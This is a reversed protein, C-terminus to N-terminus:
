PGAPIALNGPVVGGQGQPAYAPMFGPGVTISTVRTMPGNGEFGFTINDAFYYLATNDYSLRVTMDPYYYKELVEAFTSGIHVGGKTIAPYPFRGLVRIVKVAGADQEDFTIMLTDEVIGKDTRIPLPYVWTVLWQVNDPGASAPAGGGGAPAMGGGAPAAGGAGGAAGAGGGPEAFGNVGYGGPQAGSGIEIRSPSGYRRLIDKFANRDNWKIGLLQNEFILRHVGIMDPRVDAGVQARAAFKGAALVVSLFVAAALVSRGCMNSAKM